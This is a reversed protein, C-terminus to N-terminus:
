YLWFIASFIKGNINDEENHEDDIYLILIVLYLKFFRVMIITKRMRMIKMTMMMNM